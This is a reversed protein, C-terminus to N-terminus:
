STYLLLPATFATACQSEYWEIRIFSISHQTNNNKNTWNKKKEKAKYCEARTTSHRKESIHTFAQCVVATWVCKWNWSEARMWFLSQLLGEEAEKMETHTRRTRTEHKSQTSIHKASCENLTRGVNEFPILTHTLIRRCCSTTWRRYRESSSFM